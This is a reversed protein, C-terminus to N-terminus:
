KFKFPGLLSASSEGAEKSVGSPHQTVLMLYGYGNINKYWFPSTTEAGIPTTVMRTLTQTQIDYGWIVNNKHRSSDEGIVLLNTNELFTLNDPNAIGELHCRNGEKDKEIPRGLLVAKMTTASYNEDVDLAYIAGCPNYPLNIDNYGGRDYFTNTKTYKKHEEMGKSIESMAIYLKKGKADFTIGEEKRFETTARQMAAYRRTELFAAAKHMQPKVKLCELGFSTNVAKFHTPCSHNSNPTATQFIDHFTVGDNTMVNGDPDLYTRIEKNTAEGLKIWSLTASGGAKASVQHWKVAYLSGSSLDKAKHAVFKFLGVNNGDDSMYVTKNDPMVYSLEHSFRGMAYHKIYTPKGKKDISVEPTWGYYYPNSKKLDGGWYDAIYNYYGDITGDTHNLERANPEYEESGLHTEWPTKMGACHVYGGFESKQSIFTLTNPKVSMEGTTSNHELENVYYSGVQCEFQSVMYLKGNRQLISTFDLGSGAGKTGNCVYPSGDDLYIPKDYVNKSLGYVEGNDRHGTKMLRMLKVQSEKGYITVSKTSEISQQTVGKAIPIPKFVISGSQNKAEVFSFGVIVMMVGLFWKYVVGV